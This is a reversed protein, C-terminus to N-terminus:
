GNKFNTVIEELYDCMESYIKEAVFREEFLKKSNKSMIMLKNPNDYLDSLLDFLDDVNENEYTLGAAYKTLLEQVTGKLSSIVPLGASMYEIVKNPISIIFDKSSRYPALGVHAYRMLTWIQPKNVWGPFSISSCGKAVEKFYELSDGDGCFVFSFARDTSELRRAAAIVTELELQRVMNSFLCVIFKNNEPCIVGRERWDLEATRIKGHEPTAASYGLPFDRDFRTKNRGAYQMGWDVYGSTIGTIATAKKCVTKIQYFYHFLIIKLFLQFYTPARAIFIDPWMDRLDIIVPVNYKNGYNIAAMSLELTPMSCFIVDPIDQQRSLYTFKSALEIHDLARRFSINKKYGISHILYLSANKSLEIKKDKNFLHKKRAHDFTGSWWIVDHGYSSLKEFFLGTRHLRDDSNAVPLPEGIKILWIRM